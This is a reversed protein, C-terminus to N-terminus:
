ADRYYPEREPADANNERLADALLLMAAPDAGDEYDREASFYGERYPDLLYDEPFM